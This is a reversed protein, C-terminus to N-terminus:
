VGIDRNKRVNKLHFGKPIIVIYSEIDRVQETGTKGQTEM